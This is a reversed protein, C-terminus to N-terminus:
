MLPLQPLQLFPLIVHDFTHVLLDFLPFIPIVLMCLFCLSLIPIGSPQTMHRSPSGTVGTTGSPLYAGINDCLYMYGLMLPTPTPFIPIVLMCLFCLLCSLSGPHSHIPSVTVGTTGSPLYALVLGINDCLYMYGLM